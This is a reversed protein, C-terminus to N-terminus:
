TLSRLNRFCTCKVVTYLGNETTVTPSGTTTGTYKTHLCTRLIVVGSGGNGGGYTAGLHDHGGVRRAGGGTNAAVLLM